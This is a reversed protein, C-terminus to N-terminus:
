PQVVFHHDHIEVFWAQRDAEGQSNFQIAQQLGPWPGKDILCRKLSEDSQRKALAAMLVQASDYAAVSAYDPLREFRKEYADRFGIYPQQADDPNYNKLSLLGEVARGGLELLVETAAWESATIPLRADSHRLSQTLRAVDVAGALLLVGDPQVALLREVIRSFSTDIQSTFPEAVLLQGQLSAMARSFEKLWSETFRRNSLDYAVALRRQGRRLLEHAFRAATAAANASVLFLADDMGFLDSATVTPAMLLVGSANAQPLVAAAMTSTFPGIVAHV